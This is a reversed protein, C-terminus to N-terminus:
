PSQTRVDPVIEYPCSIADEDCVAECEGCYDCLDPKVFELRGAVLALAGPVCVPACDGCATCRTRDLIPLSPPEEM